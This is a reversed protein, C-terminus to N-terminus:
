VEQQSGGIGHKRRLAQLAKGYAMWVEPSATALPPIINKEATLYAEKNRREFDGDMAVKYVHIAKFMFQETWYEVSRDGDPALPRYNKRKAEALLVALCKIVESDATFSVVVNKTTANDM